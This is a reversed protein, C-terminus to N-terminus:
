GWEGTLSFDQEVGIGAGTPLVLMMICLAFTPKIVMGVVTPIGIIFIGAVTNKTLFIVAFGILCIVAWITLLLIDLAGPLQIDSTREAPEYLLDAENMQDAYEAYM